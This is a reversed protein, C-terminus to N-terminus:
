RVIEERCSMEGWFSIGHAGDATDILVRLEGVRFYPVFICIVGRACGAHQSNQPHQGEYRRYWNKRHGIVWANQIHPRQLRHSSKKRMWVGLPQGRRSSWLGRSRVTNYYSMTSVLVLVLQIRLDTKTSLPSQRLNDHTKPRTTYWHELSCPINWDNKNLSEVMRLKELSALIM